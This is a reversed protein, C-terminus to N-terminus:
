HSMLLSNSTRLHSRRIINVPFDSVHTTCAAQVRPPTPLPEMKGFGTRQIMVVLGIPQTLSRTHQTFDCDQWCLRDPTLPASAM